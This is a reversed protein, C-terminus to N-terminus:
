APEARSRGSEEHGSASPEIPIPELDLAGGRLARLRGRIDECLARASLGGFPEPYPGIRRLAGELLGLAGLPNKRQLHHFAATIQILGQLFTKEPEEARLWVSEWHEHAEFFEHARYCRLGEALYGREWDFQM